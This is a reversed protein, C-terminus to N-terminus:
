ADLQNLGFAYATLFLSVLLFHAGNDRQRVTGRFELM